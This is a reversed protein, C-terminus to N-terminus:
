GSEVVEHPQHLAPTGAGHHLHGGAESGLLRRLLLLLSHKEPGRVLRLV